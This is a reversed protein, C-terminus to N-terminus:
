MIEEPFGITQVPSNHSGRNKAPTQSDFYRTMKCIM